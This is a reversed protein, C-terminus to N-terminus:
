QPAHLRALLAALGEGVRDGRSRVTASDCILVRSQGNTRTRPREAKAVPALAAALDAATIGARRAAMAVQHACAGCGCRKDGVAKHLRGEVLALAYETRTPRNTTTNM